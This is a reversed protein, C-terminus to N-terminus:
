LKQLNQLQSQLQGITSMMADLKNDGKAQQQAELLQVQLLTNQKASERLQGELQASRKEADYFRKSYDSADHSTQTLELQQDDLQKKLKAIEDSQLSALTKAGSYAPRLEDMEHGLAEFRAAVTRHDLSKETLQKEMEWLRGQAADIQEHLKAIQIDKDNLQREFTRQSDDLRADIDRNALQQIEQIIPKLRGTLAELLDVDSESDNVADDLDLRVLAQSIERSSGRGLHELILLPSPQLGQEVLEFFTSEIENDTLKQDFDARVM